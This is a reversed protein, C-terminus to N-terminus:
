PEIGRVHQVSATGDPHWLVGLADVRLTHIPVEQTRAWAAALRRLRVAKDHTIAELPSGWGRGRRAKVECVVVAGQPDRCVLDIEGGATRWNRELVDWGRRQLYNAVLDEGLDGTQRREDM